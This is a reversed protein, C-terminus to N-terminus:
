NKELNLHIKPLTKKLSDPSHISVNENAPNENLGQVFDLLYKQRSLM